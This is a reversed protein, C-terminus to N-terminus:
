RATRVIQAATQLYKELRVRERQPALMPKWLDGLQAVRDPVNDMRFDEIRIGKSIENWTVPTSITAGPTPRVSYASALTRGWANQNYDVLVHDKPRKEKRYEATILKPHEAALKRSIWKAFTWVEKQLPGRRIPVYIHIGRSGTTKPYSPIDLQSLARCVIQAVERVRDFGASPVPDLDFNLYDPRDPDDCRAYWPNLDICGLNIIWMLSGLDRVVPFPVLRAHKHQIECIEIWPPRSEPAHKMFFAQGRIGDPYRKMVMARDKLHPLLSPAISAYYALLDLKKAGIDPFFVKELNTLKVRRRGVKVDVSDTGAQAPLAM